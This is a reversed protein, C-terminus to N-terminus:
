DCKKVRVRCKMDFCYYCEDNCCNHNIIKPKNIKITILTEPIVLALTIIWATIVSYM